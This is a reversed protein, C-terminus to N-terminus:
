APNSAASASLSPNSASGNLEGYFGVTASSLVLLSKCHHMCLLAIETILEGRRRTKDARANAARRQSHRWDTTAVSNAIQQPEGRRRGMWLEQTRGKGGEEREEKEREREREREM